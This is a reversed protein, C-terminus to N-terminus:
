DMAKGTEVQISGVVHFESNGIAFVKMKSLKPLIAM